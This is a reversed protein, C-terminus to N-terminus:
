FVQTASFNGIVLTTAGKTNPDRVHQQASSVAALRLGKPLYRLRPRCRPWFVASPEVTTQTKLFWVTRAIRKEFAAHAPYEIVITSAFTQGTISANAARARGLLELV